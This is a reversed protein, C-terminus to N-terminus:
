NKQKFRWIFIYSKKDSDMLQFVRATDEENDNDQPKEAM